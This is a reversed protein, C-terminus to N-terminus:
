LYKSRSRTEEPPSEEDGPSTEEASEDATEKLPEDATEEAAYEELYEDLRYLWCCKGCELELEGECNGGTGEQLVIGGDRVYATIKNQCEPNECTFSVKEAERILSAKYVMNEDELSTEEPEATEAGQSGGYRLLLYFLYAVGALFLLTAIDM